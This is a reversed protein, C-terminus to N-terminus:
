LDTIVTTLPQLWKLSPLPHCLFREYSYIRAVPSVQNGGGEQHGGRTRHRGDQARTGAASARVDGAGRGMKEPGPIPQTIM